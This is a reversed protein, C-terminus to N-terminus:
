INKNEQLWELIELQGHGEALQRISDWPAGNGLLWKVIELHGYEVACSTTFSDWPCGNEHLWKLAELQNSEAAYSCIQFNWTGGKERIWELVEIHGYQAACCAGLDLGCTFGNEWVWELVEFYGNECAIYFVDPNRACGNELAWKIIELHGGCSAGSMIEDLHKPQGFKKYINKCIQLNNRAMNFYLLQYETLLKKNHELYENPLNERDYYIYELAYLESQNFKKPNQDVFKTSNLLEMFEIEYFNMLPYLQNLYKCSRILNRKDIIPLDLLIIKIIDLPLNM